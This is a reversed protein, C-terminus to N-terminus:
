PTEPISIDLRAREGPEISVDYPGALTTGRRLVVRHPGPPLADFEADGQDSVLLHWVDDVTVLWNTERAGPGLDVTVALAGDDMVGFNRLIGIFIAYAQKRQYWPNALLLEEDVDALSPPEVIIAPCATQQLPYTVTEVPFPPSIGLASAISEGVDTAASYGRTSGPFFRVTVARGSDSPESRHRIEIYRDARFNNTLTVIDRDSLTEETDRALLTVAGAAQLYEALYRAVHLNVHPGSLGLTGMGFESGFGGEPNIVFRAGLLKGDFWPTLRLSDPAGGVLRVPRFGPAMVRITGGDAEARPVLYVGSETWEAVPRNGSVIVAGSVASGDNANVLTLAHLGRLTDSSRDIVHEFGDVQIRMAAAGAPAHAAFEILGRQVSLAAPEGTAAPRPTPPTWEEDPASRVWVSVAVPKGDAVAVGRNDLLRARVRITGGAAPLTDPECSFVAHEAPHDLLFASTLVASSNGLLNRTRLSVNYGGNPADWPLRYWVTSGTPDLSADVRKGNVRMDIGGPDIGAGGVDDVAFSVYPVTTLVTDGAPPSLRELRPTGRSFYELIGLFYAEAELRQKESLRLNKEVTTHTLYSGEGLIAPVDVNRLMYYNGPRVEGDAIGLNKMLHRHVAFALDRSAPDGLKYYTETANKDADRQPQANHHVSVLIDPQISDVMAVRVKLDAAVTTDAGSILFDKEASRTLFADAGAENLLGWLYLSVGLNVMSEELGNQGRTGAFHGGHGPDIVIKRGALIGPDLRPLEENLGRYVNDIKPKPPKACGAAVLLACIPILWFRHRM